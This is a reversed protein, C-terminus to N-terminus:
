LAAPITSRPRHRVKRGILPLTLPLTRPRMKRGVPLEPLWTHNDETSPRPRSCPKSSQFIPSAGSPSSSPLWRAKTPPSRTSTAAARNPKSSHSNRSLRDFYGGDQPQQPRPQPQAQFSPAGGMPPIGPSAPAARPVGAAQPTGGGMKRDAWAQLGQVTMGRLFPNAQVAQNGLIAEVSTNPDAQLVKVAGGPGAFHALYTNGPTVPVGAKTLIAQNQNAYAETMERSLQPNSKLALLENDSRGALDPRAARITDLWTSDIFQGLGSASSNPNTANPNGGSEVGIIRDLIDM